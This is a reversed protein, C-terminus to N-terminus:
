SVFASSIVSSSRLSKTALFDSLPEGPIFSMTLVRDTALDWHVLPVHVYDLPRLQQRFFDINKGEHIYDTEELIGQEVERLISESIHGTLRVPLAASRLLKFDNEIASRIAPYQIKVALRTGDKSVARHVQGLSAAAFAEAEFTRFM